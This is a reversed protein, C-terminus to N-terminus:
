GAQLDPDPNRRDCDCLGTVLGARAATIVAELQSHVGLKALVNRVYSRSTHATIGLHLAIRQPDLGEALLALVDRERETLHPDWRRAHVHGESRVRQRVAELTGQGLELGVSDSRIAGLIEDLSADKALFGDAGASAAWVLLELTPYGTLLITRVAPRIRKVRRMGEIGDAGPLGYDMLVVDVEQATVVDVADPVDAAHSVSEIDPEHELVIGLLESFTKSDEVCLVRYM